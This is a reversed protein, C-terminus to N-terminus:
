AYRLLKTPQQGWVRPPSGSEELHSVQTLDNDGCVHPHVTRGFETPSTANTTGVCTPTFRIAAQIGSLVFLQGWVRPPSGCPRINIVIRRDNDGCVHPHVPSSRLAGQGKTTTGVCTPTFRFAAFILPKSRHQGWVRPPSGYRYTVLTHTRLNDGCVHPHVTASSSAVVLRLTTGVCTPTFRRSAIARISLGPQGWVRPPSGATEWRREQLEPNDGCM